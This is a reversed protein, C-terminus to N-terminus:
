VARGFFKGALSAAAGGSTRDYFLRAYFEGGPATVNWFNNGSAGSLAVVTAGSDAWNTGDLSFQLEMDGVPTGSAWVFQFGYSRFGSVKIPSTYADALTSASATWAGTAMLGDTNWLLTQASEQAM